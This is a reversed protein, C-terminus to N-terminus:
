RRARRMNIMTKFGDAAGEERLSRGTYRLFVEDLSPKQVTLTTLSIGKQFVFAMLSPLAIDANAVRLKMTGQASPLVELVGPFSKIVDGAKSDRFGLTIIDGNLSAKLESPTGTVIIKGHDVISVRDALADVEELYHSTLIITMNFQKKLGKIYDWMVTRTQVDLGLTPEDLFLVKPENILGIILELRKRMGGSYERVHKEAADTLDVMQLLRNAREVAIKKPVDYFSAVMLLNEMGSFDEDATMDQPVVGIIRRINISHRNIDHGAVSADGSTSSLRTTLMNITTTKGAGNPGLLGYVEGEDITFSISDVAPRTEGKYVKTLNRADIIHKLQAATIGSM